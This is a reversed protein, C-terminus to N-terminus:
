FLHIFQEETRPRVGRNVQDATATAAHTAQPVQEQIQAMTDEARVQDHIRLNLLEALATRFDVKAVL